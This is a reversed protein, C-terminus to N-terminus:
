ADLEPYNRFIGNDNFAIRRGSALYRAIRKHRAVRDHLAAVLHAGGKPNRALSM